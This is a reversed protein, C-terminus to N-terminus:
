VKDCEEGSLGGDKDTLFRAAESQLYEIDHKSEVQVKLENLPM